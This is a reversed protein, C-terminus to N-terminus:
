SYRFHGSAMWTHCRKKPCPDVLPCGFLALQEKLLKNEEEVASLQDQLAQIRNDKLEKPTWAKIQVM